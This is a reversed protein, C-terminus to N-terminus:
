DYKCTITEFGPPLKWRARIYEEKINRAKDKLQVQGREALDQSLTGNPGYLSLIFSWQSGHDKIAKMLCNIETESWPVRHQPKYQKKRYRNVRLHQKVAVYNQYQDVNLKNKSDYTDDPFEINDKNIALTSNLRQIALSKKYLEMAAQASASPIIPPSSPPLNSLELNSSVSSLETNSTATDMQFLDRSDIVGQINDFKDSDFLQNKEKRKRKKRNYVYKDKTSTVPEDFMDQLTNEISESNENQSDWFIKQYDKQRDFLSKKHEQDKNELNKNNDIDLIMQSLHKIDSVPIEGENESNFVHETSQELLFIPNNNNDLNSSYHQNLPDISKKKDQYTQKYPKKVKSKLINLLKKQIFEIMLKVFRYWPFTQVLIELSSPLERIEQIKKIRQTCADIYEEGNEMWMKFRGNEDMFCKKLEDDEEFRSNGTHSESIQNLWIAHIFLQTRLEIIQIYSHWSTTNFISLFSCDMERLSDYRQKLDDLAPPISFPNYLESLLLAANAFFLIHIENDSLYNSLPLINIFHSKTYELATLKLAQLLFEKKKYMKTGRTTIEKFHPVFSTKPILLQIIRESHYKLDPLIERMLDIDEIEDTKNSSNGINDSEKVTNISDLINGVDVDRTVIETPIRFPSLTSLRQNFLIDDTNETELRSFDKLDHSDYSVEENLLEEHFVKLQHELQQKLQDELRQKSFEEISKQPHQEMLELLIDEKVDKIIDKEINSDSM